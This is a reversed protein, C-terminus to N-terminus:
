HPFIAIENLGAKIVGIGQNSFEQTISNEM